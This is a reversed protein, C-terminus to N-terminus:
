MVKEPENELDVGPDDRVVVLSFVTTEKPLLLYINDETAQPM